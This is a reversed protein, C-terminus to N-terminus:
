LGLRESQLSVFRESWGRARRLDRFAALRPDAALAAEAPMRADKALYFRGGHDITIRDLRDMLARNRETAPFDMALTYGECPFSLRSEDPGFRKLVSLFSPSGASSVDALMRGLGERATALPLVCQFQYFGRRGYIRNWDRIADLPYFYSDWDVIQEGSKRLGMRWYLANFLGVSLRNLAFGPADLPVTRARRRPVEFPRRRRDQTLDGPRAHRGFM